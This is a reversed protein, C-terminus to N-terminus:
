LFFSDDKVSNVIISAQSVLLTQWLGFKLAFEKQAALDQALDNLSQHKFRDDMIDRVFQHQSSCYDIDNIYIDSCYRKHCWLSEHGPYKIVLGNVWGLHRDRDLTPLLLKMLQQLYQFGSYDSINLEIWRRTDNYEQVLTDKCHCYNSLIWYRYTWAYYNRPYASSAKACVQFEKQICVQINSHNAL